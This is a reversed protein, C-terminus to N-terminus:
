IRVLEIGPRHPERMAPEMAGANRFVAHRRETGCDFCARADFTVDAQRTVALDHHEMIM